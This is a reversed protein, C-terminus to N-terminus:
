ISNYDNDFELTRRDKGKYITVKYTMAVGVGKTYTLTIKNSKIAFMPNEKSIRVQLLTPLKANRYKEVSRLIEGNNDYTVDAEMFRKRYVVRYTAPESNDYIPSKKLEYNSIHSQFDEIAESFRVETINAEYNDNRALSKLNVVRSDSFENGNSHDLSVMMEQQANVINLVLISVITVLSNKM